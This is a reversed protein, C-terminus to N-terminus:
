GQLIDGAIKEALAYVVSQPHGPPLLAFASADVVRLRNVGIVRAKSDVVATPDDTRGMRCTTSAHWVTMMDRRIQNLIADDSQVGPGPHYEVPDALVPKVANSAFVKRVRKYAQVAVDADAPHTLWGADIVPKDQISNSRLSVSGRSQPNVLAALMSGYQYGDKPQGTLLSSFDGIYGPASLYEVDPWSDPYRDLLQRTENKLDGSPIDEFAIMDAVPNTLVGRNRSFNTLFEWMIALPSNALKTFTEVNVRYSPSFFIHDTLNQGVGARDAVVSIGFKRLHEAPGVGSLMLLQPSHFAGASLIVEKRALIKRGLAVQVGIANKQDDFLIREATTMELVHLNPRGQRQAQRLFSTQSSERNGNEAQVTVPAYSCGHLNGSSFGPVVPIGLAETLGPLLYSTLPGGYNPYTVSLPGANADYADASWAVTANPARVDNRPPSFRVSKRFYPEFEDWTYSDDGVLSAWMDLSGRDPRQYIMFNRASCGGLCKGRAYHVQRNLGGKLPETQLNWDVLPQTDSMSSGVFLVDAGPTSGFAISSVQYEIGPEIVAIQLSPNESLRAALTLGATGGGVIVYDYTTDFLGRDVVAAQLPAACTLVATLSAFLLM